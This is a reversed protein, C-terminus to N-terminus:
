AKTAPTPDPHPEVRWGGDFRVMARDLVFDGGTAETGGPLDQIVVEGQARLKRVAVSLAEDAGAPARIARVAPETVLGALERLYISFGVAPRARGFAKGIEDYRGGRLVASPLEPTHVAFSVGTLYRYAHLDALDISVQDATCNSTLLALEDLAAAIAPVDPLTRRAMDIVEAGGACRALALFGDRAQPGFGSVCDALAPLDKTNMVALLEDLRELALPELALLGRVVGTHGLDLHVHRMGALRLSAVALELVEADAAPAASGYLEAGIQLPERPALPHLPRAHLVSGAYALRTVGPRNLIHADIRAVQPTTDARLGLLRGSAQDVLKFIRLDLDSGIGTTLSEVFEILPPIVLEYGYGRYLDLLARRLKEVRRAEYPLVDSINEPLLWRPM